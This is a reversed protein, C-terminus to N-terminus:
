QCSSLTVRLIMWCSKGGFSRKITDTETDAASNYCYQSYVQNPFIQECKKQLNGKTSLNTLAIFARIIDQVQEMVEDGDFNNTLEGQM